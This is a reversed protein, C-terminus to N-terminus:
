AIDLMQVIVVILPITAMSFLTSVFVLASGEEPAANYVAAMISTTTAAPMATLAMALIMLPGDIRLLRCGLAVIFPLAALRVFSTVYIRWRGWVQGARAQALNIGIVIMSLPSTVDGLMKIGKYLPEPLRFSFLFMMFGAFVAIISPNVFTKWSLRITREGEKAIIWAGVSYAFFSFLINFVCAHFIYEPGLIAEVMPYGIFGCNSFLVAYRHVGREVGKIRLLYPYAFALPFAVAYMFLSAAAAKGAEGLLDGSFPRQFAVLLMCPLTVNLIFPSFRVSAEPGAVKAKACIYGLVILIFLVSVQSVVSM